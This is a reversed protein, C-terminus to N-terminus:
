LVGVKEGTDICLVDLAKSRVAACDGLWAAVAETLAFRDLKPNALITPKTDGSDESIVVKSLRLNKVTRLADRKCTLTPGGDLVDILGSQEFGEHRLMTLAAQGEAHVEGIVACATDDLHALAISGKPLYAALKEFEGNIVMANAEAFTMPIHRRGFGQWFPSIGNDDFVGRLEAMIVDAFLDKHLAILVYRARSLLKGVGQGRANPSVFLSGVETFGDCETVLQLSTDQASAFGEIANSNSRSVRLSYHPGCVGVRAKVSAIGLVRADPVKTIVLTYWARERDILRNFSAESLEIRSRMADRNRPLGTFGFGAQATLALAQDVDSARIPRVLLM